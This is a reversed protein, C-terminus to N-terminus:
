ETDRLPSPEYIEGKDIEEDKRVRYQNMLGTLALTTFLVLCIGRLMSEHAQSVNVALLSGSAMAAGALATCLVLMFRFAKQSLFALILALGIPLWPFLDPRHALDVLLSGTAWGSALGLLGIMMKQIFFLVLAGIVGAIGLIWISMDPSLAALGMYGGIFGLVILAARYLRYGYHCIVLGALATLVVIGLPAARMSELTTFSLMTKM